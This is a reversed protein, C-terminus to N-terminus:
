AWTLRSFPSRDSSAFRALLNSHAAVTLRGAASTNEAKCASKRSAVFANRTKTDRERSATPPVNRTWAPERGAAFATELTFVRARGATFVTELKAVRGRGISDGDRRRSDAERGAPDESGLTWASERRTSVGGSVFEDNGRTGPSRTKARRAKAVQVGRGIEALIALLAALREM